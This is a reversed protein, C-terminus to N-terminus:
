RFTGVWTIEHLSPPTLPWKPQTKTVKRSSRNIPSAANTGAVIRHMRPWFMARKLTKLINIQGEAQGSSWAEAFANRVADVDRALIRAFQQLAHIGSRRADDLRSGLKDPDAGRLLARFRM